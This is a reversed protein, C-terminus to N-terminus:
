HCRVVGLGLVSLWLVYIAIPAWRFYFSRFRRSQRLREGLRRYGMREIVAIWGESFAGFALVMGLGVVAAFVYGFPYPLDRRCAETLVVSAKM